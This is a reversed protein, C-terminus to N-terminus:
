LALRDLTIPNELATGLGAIVCHLPAEAAVMPLGTWARLARDLGRLLSGGGCLVVGHELVDGALEPPTESLVARMGERIEGLVPELATAIDRPNLAIETPRGTRLERGKVAVASDGSLPSELSILRKAAEASRSGVELGHRDRLLAALAEDMRDGGVPISRASAVGGLSMVTIETRGAGIDVVMSGVPDWLPLDLGLAAVPGRPLLRVDRFGVARLSEGIARREVETLSAPVAAIARPRVLNRGVTKQILRRLLAEVLRFDQVVGERVPFRVDVGEPARGAMQAADEGVAIVEVGEDTSRSAVATPEELVVGRGQVYLRTTATGLDIALDRSFQGLLGEM